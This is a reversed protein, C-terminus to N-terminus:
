LCVCTYRYVCMYKKMKCQAELSRAAWPPPHQTTDCPRLSDQERCHPPVDGGTNRPPSPMRCPKSEGRGRRTISFCTIRSLQVETPGRPHSFLQSSLSIQSSASSLSAPLYHIQCHFYRSKENTLAKATTTLLMCHIFGPAPQNYRIALSTAEAPRQLYEWSCCYIMSRRTDM